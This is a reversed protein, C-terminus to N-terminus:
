IVLVASVYKDYIYNYTTFYANAAMRYRLDQREEDDDSTAETIKSQLYSNALEFQGM